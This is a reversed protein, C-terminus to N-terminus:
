GQLAAQAALQVRRDGRNSGRGGQEVAHEVRLDGERNVLGAVAKRFDDFVGVFLNASEGDCGSGLVEFGMERRQLGGSKVRLQDVVFAEGQPGLRHV